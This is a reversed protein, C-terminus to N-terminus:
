APVPALTLLTLALVVLATVLVLLIALPVLVIAIARGTTTSHAERIGIVMVFLYWAQVGVILSLHITTLVAGTLGGATRALGQIPPLVASLLSVGSAYCIVTATAALGRGGPALLLVFLQQSVSVVGLMLLVAFPTVFFSLLQLEFTLGLEYGVGPPGWTFWFLGLLGGTVALLLFYLLPRSFPGDWHVRDFFLDPSVLCDWWTLGLNAPFPMSPDEWPVYGPAGRKM